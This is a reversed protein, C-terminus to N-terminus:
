LDLTTSKKVGPTEKVGSDRQRKSERLRKLVDPLDVPSPRSPDQPISHDIFVPPVSSRPLIPDFRESKRGVRPNRSLRQPTSTREGGLNNRGSM